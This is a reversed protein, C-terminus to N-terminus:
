MSFNDNDIITKFLNPIAGQAPADIASTSNTRDNYPYTTDLVGSCNTATIWWDGSNWQVKAAASNIIQVWQISYNTDGFNYDGTPLTISSNFEIGPNNTSSGYHLFFGEKIYNTGVDILGTKTTITGKPRVVNFTTIPTFSFGGAKMTCQAQKGGSDAWFFKLDYNTEITLSEPHGNTWLDDDSVYFNTYTTGSVNWSYNTISFPLENGVADAIFAFLDAIEGVIATESIDTVDGKGTRYIRGTFKDQGATFTYYDLNLIGLVKPTIAKTDNDQLACWLNSDTGLTGPLEGMKIQNPSVPYGAGTALNTIAFASGSIQFLNQRHSQGIGGTLLTLVTQAKRTYTSTGCVDTRNTTINCHELLINPPPMNTQNSGCTSSSSGTQTPGQENLIYEDAPWTTDVECTSNNTTPFVYRSSSGGDEQWQLHYIYSFALPCGVVLPQPGAGGGSSTPTFIMNTDVTYSTVVIQAPKDTTSNNVFSNGSSLAALDFCAEGGASSSVNLAYWTGDGNNVGPVGNVTLTCSVDSVIGTVNITPQWLQEPPVPNMALTQTGQMLTLSTVTPLGAANTVAITLVNPGSNLPLNELWFNGDRGVLGNVSTIDGNTDTIQATVTATPDDLTGRCTFSGACIQSGDPPWVVQVVPNTATSYDLTIYINTTTTNGAWDTVRLTITNVGNTLDLDYCQIWNTTFAFLVPDFYESKVFGTQNSVVGSANSIDYSIASLPKTAYGQLQITPQATVNVTPNTIVVTPAVTDLTLSLSQWTQTANPAHGCLGVTVSYVGDTSGLNMTINTGTYAQWNADAQNTDNVLVAFYSPVGAILNVQVPVTTQNVYFSTASLTFSIVNPDFGNTFDSVLPNGQSDLNTDFLATTGFYKWLWWDPVTNGNETVGTWDEARLFLIPRGLTPVTFPQCNTDTPFVETEVQWGACPTAVNTTSWIAYVFNTAHHLNLATWGTGMNVNTFELWLQSHDFWFNFGSGYAGSGDGSDGDGFGGDGPLSPLDMGLSRMTTRLQQNVAMSQVQTILGVLWDAQTALTSALMARTVPMGSHRTSAIVQGGTDDVLFQNDSMLYVASADQPLFPMPCYAGGPVVCWYCFSGGHSLAQDPSLSPLGQAEATIQVISDGSVPQVPAAIQVPTAVSGFGGVVVTQAQLQHQACVM